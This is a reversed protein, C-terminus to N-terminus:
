VRRLIDRNREKELNEARKMMMAFRLITKVLEQGLITDASLIPPREPDLGQEVM